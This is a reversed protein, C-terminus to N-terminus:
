KTAYLPNADRVSDPFAQQLRDFASQVSEPIDVHAIFNKGCPGYGHVDDRLRPIEGMLLRIYHNMDWMGWIPSTYALKNDKEVVDAQYVAYNLIKLDKDAYKRLGADMRRQMTADQCILISRCPIQREHLLDLLNTINNGCNTSQCELFDPELGYRYRLYGAFVQAEPLGATELAPFERHMNQRLSETTHGAGGVIGYSKAIGASMAQALVDGGCLISGGFLVMVDVQDQGIADRLTSRTLVPIDRKGCFRGLINISEAIEKM